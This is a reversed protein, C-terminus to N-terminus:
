RENETKVTVAVKLLMTLILLGFSLAGLTVSIETLTPLYGIIEGTPSHLLASGKEVGISLAVGASALALWRTSSKLTPVQLAAISAVGCLLSFWMFPAVQSTSAFYDMATLLFNLSGAYIILVVLQKTVEKGADFATTRKLLLIILLLLATGGAFASALLRPALLSASWLNEPFAVSFLGTVVPIAIALPISLYILPKVWAAVPVDKREAGLTAWSSALNILLFGNLLFFAVV